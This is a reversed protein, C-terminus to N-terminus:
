RKKLKTEQVAIQRAVRLVAPPTGYPCVPKSTIKSRGALPPSIANAWDPRYPPVKKWHCRRRAELELADEGDLQPEAEVVSPEPESAPEVPPPPPPARRVIPDPQPEPQPAEVHRRRKPRRKRVPRDQKEKAEDSDGDVEAAPDSEESASETIEENNEDDPSNADRASTAACGLGVSVTLLVAFFRM